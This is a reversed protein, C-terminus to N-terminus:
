EEEGGEKFLLLISQLVFVVTMIDSHILFNSSAFLASLVKLLPYFRSPLTAYKDYNAPAFILMMLVAFGTLYPMWGDAIPVHPIGALVLTSVTACMLSSKLHYGGSMYRIVALVLLAFGTPLFEGTLAGIILAAIAASLTNTLIDFAYKIVSASPANEVGAAVMRNHLGVALKDLM